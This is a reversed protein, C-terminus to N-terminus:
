LTPQKSQRYAIMALRKANRCDDCRCGTRYKADTGHESRKKGYLPLQQATKEKHCPSCLRQCKALEEALEALPKWWFASVNFSKQTPDIHDIEPADTAGCVVCCSGVLALIEERRQQRYDQMYRRMDKSPM